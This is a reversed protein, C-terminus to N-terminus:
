QKVLIISLKITLKEVKIFISINKIMKVIFLIDVQIIVYAYIKISVIYLIININFIIIIKNSTNLNKSKENTYNTYITYCLYNIERM